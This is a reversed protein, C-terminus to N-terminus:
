LWRPMGYGSWAKGQEPHWGVSQSRLESPIYMQPPVDAKPQRWAIDLPVHLSVDKYRKTCVSHFKYLIIPTTIFIVVAQIIAQKTILQCATFYALSLLMIVFRDFLLPWLEGGSEYNRAYVYLMHHRCVVYMFIFYFAVIAVTIPSTAIYVVGILTMLLATGAERGYMFSKPEWATYRQRRTINMGKFCTVSLVNRLVYNLIGPHPFFLKMPVLFLTRLLVYNTLFIASTAISQGLTDLVARIDTLTLANGFFAFLSSGLVSGLFINFFDWYFYLSTIRKDVGSLSFSVCEVLSVM